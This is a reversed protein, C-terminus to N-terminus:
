RELHARARHRATGWLRHGVPSLPSGAPLPVTIAALPSRKQGYARPLGRQSGRLGWGGVGWVVGRGWVGGTGWEQVGGGEGRFGGGAGAGSRSRNCLTFVVSSAQLNGHLPRPPEYLLLLWRLM